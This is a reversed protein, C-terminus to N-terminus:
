NKVYSLKNRDINIYYGGGVLLKNGEVGYVRYQEGKKLSRMSKGDLLLSTDAQINVLGEFYLANRHFHVYYGGGVQYRGDETEYVRIAEGKTLVRHIKGDPTYLNRNERILIRGTYMAVAHNEHKIYYDGGVNYYQGNSGYVRLAEGKVANKFPTITGDRDIKVIQIDKKIILRGQPERSVEIDGVVPVEPNTVPPETGPNTVPPETGPDTVPPETGPNTVPPETGPNTVPPETGPDTVPPETGPDTVPPETGPDTVPLEEFAAIDNASRTKLQITDNYRSSIGTVNVKDGNKFSFNDFVLGSRNDVRVTVAEGNKEATFEFTGFNNIKKLDKITVAEIRVLQSENSASIQGPTLKLAAPVSGESLVQLATVNSVQKEKAFEGTKGSVRVVDGPKVDASNQFIYLGGTEDQIYFGKQGWIGTGTTVTGEIIVEEGAATNRAEAITVPTAVPEEIIEIFEYSKTDRLGPQSFYAALNGSVEVLKGINAPNDVLNLASRVAGSPLMVPLVKTRDREDLSDAIVLNTAVYNGEYSPANNTMTGVIYGRVKGSGSNKAIAEAVTMYDANAPPPTPAATDGTVKIRSGETYDVPGQHNRVFEVVAQWVKGHNSGILEDGLNYFAAGHMYSNYAVTLKKSSDLPQGETTTLIVDTFKGNEKVVEYHFGSVQLDVGNHYTSQEKIVEKLREVTTTTVTLDNSFQDMFEIQKDTIKGAPINGTVSSNNLVAIDTKAAARIADTYLNGLSSDAKANNNASLGKTTTGIEQGDIPASNSVEIAIRQNAAYNIAKGESTLHKAYDIMASTMFGSTAELVTGAFEYGSGGTGIYDGVAVIYTQDAKVPEGNVTLESGIYRGTNNTLIKYHLGSTQLDIRNRGGRTYSYEIVNKLAAGTMEIKMIENAFPEIVFIDNVKISGAPINARIGGSNTLAVDANTYHRISDTWFNGLQTDLNGSRNLGTETSGIVEGLLEEMEANYADVKAQISANVATLASVKQLFGQVSVVKGTEPQYQITLNGVNEANGGTQVIPTGNVIAPANLTTHSHGGIIVDFFDVQEALKRDETYGQHTLAILIDTEDKLHAYKKATEIPNHFNIGKINAPATSPPTETLSFVGVSLGNVDFIKYPEPQPFPVHTNGTVETNASLWAFNSEAMRAVTEEQGYDFDHNGIAMAQLGMDNLLSVIPKGFQLDVVPNGSFIDGADLYMSYQSQSRQNEIYAAIKGFDNVKAHIDNTHLVKLEITEGEAAHAAPVISGLLSYLLVFAVMMISLLKKCNSHFKM